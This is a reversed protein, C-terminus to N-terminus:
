QTSVGFPFTDNDYNQGFSENLQAQQTENLLDLWDIVKCSETGFYESNENTNKLCVIAEDEDILANIHEGYVINEGILGIALALSSFIFIFKILNLKTLELM